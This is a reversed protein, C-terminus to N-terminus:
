ESNVKYYEVIPIDAEVWDLKHLETVPLWEIKLHEKLHIEFTKLTCRFPILEIETTGNYSHRNAPLRELIEIEVGLEELIERKLCAEATEGEKIKGGPFEWKLPHMM